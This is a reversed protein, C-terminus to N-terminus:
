PPFELSIEQTVTSVQLRFAAPVIAHVSLPPRGLAIYSAASCSGGPMTFALSGSGWNGSPVRLGWRYIAQVGIGVTVSRWISATM